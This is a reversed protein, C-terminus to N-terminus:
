QPLSSTSSSTTASGSVAGPGPVAPPTSTSEPTPTSEPTSTAQPAVACSSSTIMYDDGAPTLEVSSLESLSPQRNIRWFKNSFTVLNNNLLLSRKVTNDYYDYGQWSDAQNFHGAASHDIKGLLSLKNNATSFILAGSFAIAGQASRLVAPVSLLNNDPSYFLAERDALAISDSSSDGILYNSLEKPKSLDTFDLWSLKLNNVVGGTSSATSDDRGLSIFQRGNQDLPQLYDALGPVQVAGLLAPKTPDSLDVAVLPGSAQTTILYARNGIFRVSYIQATTDLNELRGVIKLDPGLVYINSYFDTPAAALASTAPVVSTLLRLYDGNEDLGSSSPIQGKIEGQAQYSFQGGSWGIKYIFTQGTDPTAAAALAAPLNSSITTQIAAQDGASASLLYNNIIQGVKFQKEAESVLTGPASEIAAVQSQDAASLKPYVLGRTLKQTVEGADVVPSYTIYAGGSGLYVNAADSLLYVQGSLTETNNKLNIATLSIFRDSNYPTDLYYVDPAFCAAAGNCATGLVQGNSSVPPIISDGTLRSLPSATLFYVYDGVLRADSYSGEFDLDRVPQPNLPDSIDFVKFFTYNGAPTDAGYVALFNGDLFLNQPRSKFTIKSVVAAGEAPDAKIILVQSRELAYVYHGETKIIDATADTGTSNAPAYGLYDTSTSLSDVAARPNLNSAPSYNDSLFQALEQYNSFKKLQNTPTATTSTALGENGTQNSVTPSAKKQWPWTCASVLPVTIILILALKYIKKSM